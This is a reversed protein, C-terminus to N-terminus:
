LTSNLSVRFFAFSNDFHTAWGVDLFHLAEYAAECGYGSKKGFQGFLGSGNDLKEFFGCLEKQIVITFFKEL